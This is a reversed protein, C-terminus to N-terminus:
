RKSRKHLYYGVAVIGLVGVCVMAITKPDLKINVKTANTVPEEEEEIRITNNVKDVKAKWRKISTSEVGNISPLSSLLASIKSTSSTPKLNKGFVFAINKTGFGLLVTLQKRDKIFLLPLIQYLGEKKYNYYLKM